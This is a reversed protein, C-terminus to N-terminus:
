QMANRIWAMMTLKPTGERCYRNNHTTWKQLRRYMTLYYALYCAINSWALLVSASALPKPLEGRIEIRTAGPLKKANGMDGFKAIASNCVTAM